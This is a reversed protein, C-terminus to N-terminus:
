CWIEMRLGKADLPPIHPFRRGSGNVIRAASWACAAADLLDDPGADRARIGHRSELFKRDYGAAELLGRRLDLGPENPRSKLKKPLGLPHQGNLAWFALEPHIERVREQMDPTILADIERIKPFLNFCQKSVKRPPDSTAFAVDCAERYDACMVAARSPIAFIASQRAGLNARAGIDADRGGITVREPLGIPMDVAILEPTPEIALVDAFTAAVLARAEGPAYLPRLVVLWGAPCGDVGAVWRSNVASRNKQQADPM